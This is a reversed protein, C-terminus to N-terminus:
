MGPRGVEELAARYVDLYGEIMREVGFREAASRRCDAPDIEGIRGAAEILEAPEDRLFGTVGEEVIEPLAGRRLALVPTGTTLAELVVLGFPEEWQLPFLLARAGTMAELVEWNSMERVHRVREGDVHPAIRDEYYEESWPLYPSTDGVILLKEDLALAIEIAEAIGKDPTIRGVTILGERGERGRFPSEAVPLGNPVVDLDAEGLLEAQRRSVCVPRIEPFRERYWRHLHPEVYHYSLVTPIEWSKSFYPALCPWHAHVLDLEGGAVREALEFANRAEFEQALYFTAHPDHLTAREVVAHLRASTRSDGAAFLTVDHGEEVLGECLRHVMWETGGHSPPPVPLYISTIQAIRM